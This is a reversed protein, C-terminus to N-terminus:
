PCVSISSQGEFGPGCFSTAACATLCGQCIRVLTQAKNSEVISGDMLHGRGLVTVLIEGVEDPNVLSIAQGDASDWAVVAGGQESNALVQFKAPRTKTGAFPLSAVNNGATSGAKEVTIDFEDMQADNTNLRAGGGNATLNNRIVVGLYLGKGDRSLDLLQGFTQVASTEVTCSNDPNVFKTIQLTTEEVGCSLFPAIAGLILIKKM